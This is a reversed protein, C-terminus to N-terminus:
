QYTLAARNDWIHDFGAFQVPSAGAAPKVAYKVALPNVSNDVFCIRWIAQDTDPVFGPAVEGIYFSGGGLADVLAGMAGPYLAANLAANRKHDILDVSVLYSETQGQPLASNRKYGTIQSM